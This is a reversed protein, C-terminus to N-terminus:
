FLLTPSLVDRRWLDSNVEYASSLEGLFKVKCKTKNNCLKVMIVYKKSIGFCILTNWLEERNISDYAQKYDVLVLDKDLEYHKKMVQRLILVPDTTSRGIRFCM